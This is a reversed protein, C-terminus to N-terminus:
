NFAHSTTAKDVMLMHNNAPKQVNRIVRPTVLILIRSINQNKQIDNFDQLGPIDGIGPLGNLARSETSSINEAMMATEGAMLTVVGTDEQSNLIPISNLSTGGLATIKLDIKLAVDNSRLIKPTAKLTLGIDEYQVQPIVQSAAATAAASIGPINPLAASSYQSTEIPFREGIKFTGDEDDALRLHIDDLMRSDSMNMTMTLTASSVSLLSASVGNGFGIVGNNFISGSLQGAALLIGIITIQNNLTTDNPVLGQSIIQQVASQNANIISQVESLANSVGTQQFATVGTERNAIHALQIVKVELDVEGKGQELQALTKNIATMTRAPARLMLTGTSPQTTSQSADFVNRTIQTVETLEKENLGGLYITEMQMRQFQNRNERTDAAVVVRHPDIPEYFSQTLMSLVRMAEPFTADDVDLRVQKNMASISGPGADSVTAEIGYARFVDQAIQRQTGRTHFSHKDLKPQLVIPGDSLTDQDHIRDPMAAEVLAPAASATSGINANSTAGALQNLHELVMPNTPDISLARQLLAASGEKPDATIGGPALGAASRSEELERQRSAQQVLQTVLSQRAVEAARAYTTNAPALDVAENLTAWAQEPQKKELLKVGQLYLKAAKRQSRLSSAQVPQGIQIALTPPKDKADPNAKPKPNADPAPSAPAQAPAPQAQAAPAQPTQARLPMALGVALGCPLWFRTLRLTM